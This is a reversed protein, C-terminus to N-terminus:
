FMEIALGASDFIVDMLANVSKSSTGRRLSLGLLGLMLYEGYMSSTIGNDIVILFVLSPLTGDFVRKLIMPQASGVVAPVM